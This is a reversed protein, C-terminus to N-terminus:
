EPWDNADKPLLVIPNLVGFTMPTSARESKLLKVPHGLGVAFSMAENLSAWEIADLPKARRTYWRALALGLAFRGLVVALGAGWIVILWPLGRQWLKPADSATRNPPGGLSSELGGVAPATATSEAAGAPEHQENNSPEVSSAKWADVDGGVPAAAQGAFGFSPIVEFKKVPKMMVTVVPLLLVGILGLHWALHRSAASGRRLWLAGAAALGLIVVSKLASDFLLPLVGSTGSM